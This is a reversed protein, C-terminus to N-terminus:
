IRKMRVLRRDRADTGYIRGTVLARSRVRLFFSMFFICSLFIICVHLRSLTICLYMIIFYYYYQMVYMVITITLTDIVFLDIVFLDHSRKGAVNIRSYEKAGIVGKHNRVIAISFYM